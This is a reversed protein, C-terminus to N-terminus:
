PLAAAIGVLVYSFRHCTRPCLRFDDVRYTTSVITHVSPIRDRVSQRGILRCQVIGRKELSGTPSFHALNARELTTRTPSTLVYKPLRLEVQWGSNQQCVGPPTDRFTGNKEPRYAGSHNRSLSRRNVCERTMRLASSLFSAVRDITIHGTWVM